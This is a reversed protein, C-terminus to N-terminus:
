HNPVRFENEENPYMFQHKPKMLFVESGVMKYHWLEDILQSLGPNVYYDERNEHNPVM